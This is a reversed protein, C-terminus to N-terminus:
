IGSELNRSPMSSPIGRNKRSADRSENRKIRWDGHFLGAFRGAFGIVEEEFGDVRAVQFGDTLSQGRAHVDIGRAFIFTRGNQDRDVLSMELNNLREDFGAGVDIANAVRGARTDRARWEGARNLIVIPFHSVCEEFGSRIDSHLGDSAIIGYALRSLPRRTM